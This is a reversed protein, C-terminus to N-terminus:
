VREWVPVQNPIEVTVDEDGSEVVAQCGLRSHLTLGEAQSLRDDEADDIESLSDDGRKVIVHCTTCACVGGCNHDLNVGNELAAELISTGVDVEVSINLPLFTVKM